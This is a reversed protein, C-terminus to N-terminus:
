APAAPRHELTRHSGQGSLGESSAQGPPCTSGPCLVQCGCRSSAGARPQLLPPFISETNMHTPEMSMKLERSGLMLAKIMGTVLDAALSWTSCPPAHSNHPSGRSGSEWYQGSGMHSQHDCNVHSFILLFVGDSYTMPHPDDWMLPTRAGVYPEEM